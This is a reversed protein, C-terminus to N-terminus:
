CSRIYRLVNGEIHLAVNKEYLGSQSVPILTIDDRFMATGNTSGSEWTVKEYHIHIPINNKPQAHLMHATSFTFSYVLLIDTYRFYGTPPPRVRKSVRRNGGNHHRFGCCQRLFQIVVELDPQSSYTNKTMNVRTSYCYNQVTQNLQPCYCLLCWHSTYM